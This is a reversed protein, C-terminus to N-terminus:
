SCSTGRALSASIALREVAYGRKVLEEVDFDNLVCAEGTRFLEFSTTTATSPWPSDM